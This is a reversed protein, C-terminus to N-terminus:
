LRSTQLLFWLILSSKIFCISMFKKTCDHNEGARAVMESLACMIDDVDTRHQDNADQFEEFTTNVNATRSDGNGNRYITVM